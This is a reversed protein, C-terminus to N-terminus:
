LIKGPVFIIGALDGNAWDEKQSKPTLANKKKRWYEKGTSSYMRQFAGEEPLGCFYNVIRLYEDYSGNTRHIKRPAYTKESEM